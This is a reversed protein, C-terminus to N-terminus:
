INVNPLYAKLIQTNAKLTCITWCWRESSAKTNPFDRSQGCSAYGKAASSLGGAQTPEHLRQCAAQCGCFYFYSQKGGVAKGGWHLTFSLINLASVVSLEPLLLM